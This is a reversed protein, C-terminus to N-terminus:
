SFAIAEALAAKTFRVTATDRSFEEIWTAHFNCALRARMVRAVRFQPGGIALVPKAHALRAMARDVTNALRPGQAVFEIRAATAVHVEACFARNSVNSSPKVASSSASGSILITAPSKFCRSRHLTPSERTAYSTMEETQVCCEFSTNRQRWPQSGFGNRARAAVILNAVPRLEDNCEPRRLVWAPVLCAGRRWVIGGFHANAQGQCHVHSSTLVLAHEAVPRVSAGAGDSRRRNRM